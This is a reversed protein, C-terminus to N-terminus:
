LIRHKKHSAIRREEDNTSLTYHKRLKELLYIIIDLKINVYLMFPYITM